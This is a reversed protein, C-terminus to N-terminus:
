AAADHGQFYSNHHRGKYSEIRKLAAPSAKNLVIGILRESVLDASALAESVVHRSTKGWETVCVFGDILHAAARVDVVPVIPPLDIVIYRYHERAVELLTAMARSSVLDATHSVRANLVTPLFHLGSAEDEYLVDSTSKARTLVEILGARADPALMRTLSPRRLDGDILLVRNGTQSILAAFNAATTTKGENPVASVVGLVKLERSFEAIDTTVKVSRL